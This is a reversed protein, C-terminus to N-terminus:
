GGSVRLVKIAQRYYLRSALFLLGIWVLQILLVQVFEAAPREPDTVMSLPLYYMAQFPLYALVRQVAEPFFPIPILSGSLFLIIIEKTSSIGWISETYFCTLGIMYDFISNLLFAFLLALPFFYLGIGPNVSIRFVYVLVLLTPLTIAVLNGLSFGAAQALYYYQLNLPKVLTMIISGARIQESMTWDTWTKLLVFLSSALAIYLFTQNFTLGRLTEHGQFISRWLYFAIGLYVLNNLITFVFGSRYAMFGELSGRVLALYAKM